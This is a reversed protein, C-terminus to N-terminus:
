LQKLVSSVYYIINTGPLMLSLIALSEHRDEGFRYAIRPVDHNGLVYNPVGWGPLFDFLDELADRFEIANSDANLASLLAYNMPVQSGPETESEGYWQVQQTVPAYTDTLLIKSSKDTSNAIFDDIISRVDRIFAFSEPQLRLIM